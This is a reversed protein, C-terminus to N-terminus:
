KKITQIGSKTIKQKTEYLNFIPKAEIWMENFKTLRAIGNIFTRKYEKVHINLLPQLEPKLFRYEEDITYFDDDIELVRNCESIRHLNDRLRKDNQQNTQATLYISTDDKSSQLFFYTAVTNEQNRRADLWIWLEDFGFAVNEMVLNQKNAIDVLFDRNIRYHPFNVYFNTIITKGKLWEQYLRLVMFLTKGSNMQGVISNIM